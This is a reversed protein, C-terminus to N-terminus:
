RLVDKRRSFGQRGCTGKSKGDQRSGKGCCDDVVRHTSAREVLHVPLVVHRPLASPNKIRWELLEFVTRAIEDCPQHVTTLTPTIMRAIEVDDVGTVMVDEPIRMRMEALEKVMQGAIVDGACLVADPKFKRLRGKWLSPKTADLRFAGVLKGKEAAAASKIGALRLNVNSSCQSRYVYLIRRAGREIVHRGLLWGTMMNDIGVVDLGSNYPPIVMDSDLLVVPIGAQKLVSVFAQNIRESCAYHCVPRFIVGSVKQVVLKLAVKRLNSIAEKPNTSCEDTFCLLRDNAQCIRSIERCIVPVIEAPPFSSAVVGIAGMRKRADASLYTGSGRERRVLGIDQLRSVAKYVTMRGIGFRKALVNDSPLRECSSYKGSLIEKRLTEFIEEHCSRQM